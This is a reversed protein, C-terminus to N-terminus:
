STGKKKKKSATYRGTRPDHYLGSSSLIPTSLDKTTSKDSQKTPEKKSSDSKSEKAGSVKNYADYIKGVSEAMSAASKLWDEATKIKEKKKPNALEKMRTEKNIRQLRDELEKTDLLDMHKYIFKPDSSKLVKERLEERSEQKETEKKKEAKQKKKKASKRMKALLRTKKKKPKRKYGLQEPTRRVGWHMGKVGYHELSIIDAERELDTEGKLFESYELETM